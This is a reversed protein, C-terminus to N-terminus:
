YVQKNPVEGRASTELVFKHPRIEKVKNQIAQMSPENETKFLISTHGTSNIDEVIQDVVFDNVCKALVVDSFVSEIQDDKVVLIPTVDDAGNSGMYMYDTHICPIVGPVM